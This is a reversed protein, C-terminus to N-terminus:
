RDEKACVASLTVSVSARFCVGSVALYSSVHLSGSVDLLILHTHCLLLIGIGGGGGGGGPPGGGGGVKLWALVLGGLSLLSSALPRPARSDSMQLPVRSFFTATTFSRLAGMSSFVLPPPAAVPPDLPLM